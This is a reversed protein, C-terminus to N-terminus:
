LENCYLQCLPTYSFSFCFQQVTNHSVCKVYVKCIVDQERVHRILNINDNGLYLRNKKLCSKPSLFLAASHSSGALLTTLNLVHTVASLVSVVHKLNKDRQLAQISNITSGTYTCPGKRASEDRSLFPVCRVSVLFM